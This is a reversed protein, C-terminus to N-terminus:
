GFSFSATGNTGNYVLVGHRLVDRGVLAILNLSNFGRLNVGLCRPMVRQGIGKLDIMAGFLPVKTKTASASTLTGSGTVNMKAQRAKHIDVCTQTAGTDILAFGQISTAQKSQHLPSIEVGILLGASLLADPAANGKDDRYEWNVTPM